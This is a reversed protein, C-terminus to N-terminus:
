QAKSFGNRAVVEITIEKSSIYYPKHDADAFLLRLTHKGPPLDLTAETEGHAYHRYKETFPLPKILMENTLKQNILLHHHGTNEMRVGAPAIGMGVLGFAIRFPSTVKDGDRVNVFYVAKAESVYPRTREAASNSSCIEMEALAKSDDRGAATAPLHLVM